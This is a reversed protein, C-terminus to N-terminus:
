VNGPLFTRMLTINAWMPRDNGYEDTAIRKYDNVASISYTYIGDPLVSGADTYGNWSEEWNGAARYFSLTKLPTYGGTPIPEGYLTGTPSTSTSTHTSDTDIGTFTVGGQYVKITVKAAGTLKYKFAREGVYDIIPTNQIKMIRIIDVPYTVWAHGRRGTDPQPDTDPAFNDTGDYTIYHRNYADISMLYIGNSVVVGTDSRCDWEDTNWWSSDIMEGSRPVKHIITRIPAQTFKLPYGFYSRSSVVVGGVETGVQTCPPYIKITVYSDDFLQYKWYWGPGMGLQSEEEENETNSGRKLDHIYPSVTVAAPAPNTGTWANDPRWTTGTDYSHQVCYRFDGLRDGIYHRGTPNAHSPLSQWNNLSYINGSSFWVRYQVTTSIGDSEPYISIVNEYTKADFKISEIVAAYSVSFLSYFISFIIGWKLPSVLTLYLFRHLRNNKINM